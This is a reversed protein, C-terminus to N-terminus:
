ATLSLDHLKERLPQQVLLDRAREEDGLRRHLHVHPADALLEARPSAGLGHHPRGLQGALTLPQRPSRRRGPRPAAAPRPPARVPEGDRELLRRVNARHLVLVGVAAAGGFAIVPWRYGLGYALPALAAAALISALSAYRTM